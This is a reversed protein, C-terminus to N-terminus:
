FYVFRKIIKTINLKREYKKILFGFMFFYNEEVNKKEKINEPILCLRLINYYEKRVFKFSKM